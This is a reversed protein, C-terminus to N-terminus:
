GDLLRDGAPSYIVPITNEAVKLRLVILCDTGTDECADLRDCDGRGDATM